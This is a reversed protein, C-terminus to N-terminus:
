DSDSDISLRPGKHQQKVHSAGLATAVASLRLKGAQASQAATNAAKATAHKAAAGLKSQLAPQRGSSQLYAANAASAPKSASSQRHASPPSQAQGAPKSLSRAHQLSAAVSSTRDLTEATHAQKRAASEAKYTQVLSAMSGSHKATGQAAQAAKPTGQPSGEPMGKSARMHPHMSGKAEPVLADATKKTQASVAGAGAKKAATQTPAASVAPSPKMFTSPKVLGAKTSPQRPEAGAVLQTPSGGSASPAVAAKASPRPLVAASPKGLGARVSSQAPTARPLTKVKAPKATASAASPAPTGAVAAVSVASSPQKAVAKGPTRGPSGWSGDPTVPPGLRHDAYTFSQRRRLPTPDLDPMPELRPQAAPSQVPLM